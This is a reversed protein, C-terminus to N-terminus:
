GLFPEAVYKVQVWGVNAPASIPVDGNVFVTYRDNAAPDYWTTFTATGPVPGNILGWGTITRDPNLTPYMIKFNSITESLAGSHFDSYYQIGVKGTASNLVGDDTFFFKYPRPGVGGYLANRPSAPQLYGLSQGDTVKVLKIAMNQRLPVTTVVTATSSPVTVTQTSDTTTVTSTSDIVILDTTATTTTATSLSSMTYDYYSTVTEPALVVTTATAGICSCASSYQATGCASAYKPIELPSGIQLRRQLDVVSIVTTTAGPVDTTSTARQTALTTEHLTNTQVVGV